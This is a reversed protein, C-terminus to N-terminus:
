NKKRRYLLIVDGGQRWINARITALTYLNHLPQGQCVLELWDEPKAGKDRKVTSDLKEDVYALIKRTRLMRYANLRANGNPLAPLLDEYPQLVFSVKSLEKSPIKNQLLFEGLWGPAADELVTVDQFNGCSEVTGRYLDVTGGAGPLQESIIIATEKPIRLYPAETPPAITYSTTTYPGTGSAVYDDRAKQIVGRLTDEYSPGNKAEEGGANTPNSNANANAGTADTSDSLRADASSQTRNLKVKGFSRLRGMLSNSASTTDTNSDAVAEGPVGTEAAAGSASTAISPVEGASSLSALAAAPPTSVSSLASSFYDTVGATSPSIPGRDFINGDNAATGHYNVPNYTPAPTALGIALGPTPLVMGGGTSANMSDNWPSALGALSLQGPPNRQISTNDNLGRRKALRFDSDLKLESEILRAFLNRLVWKGINIRQDERFEIQGTGPFPQVETSIEDSYIEAVFVYAEELVVALQGTRTNVQCWNVCSEFTNLEDAVDMIDRSGFSKVMVCKVLDWLKVEGATDVTLVRRRDNLLIHKILGTQGEITEEPNHRLPEVTQSNESEGSQAAKTEPLITKSPSEESDIVIGNGSLSIISSRPIHSSMSNAIAQRTQLTPDQRNFFSASSRRRSMLLRHNQFSTPATDVDRWRHIRSNATATWISDGAVAIKSVGQHENCILVSLSDESESIGRMDTKVVMGSRDSSHFVELNPHDSHLSWVSTDHMNLTHLLRGATISWLKVTSDSSATLVLYGEASILISRINDTHGVFNVISSGSRQDWLRVISDPGGTGIISGGNGGIGLGYVSGKPNNGKDGVDIQLKEGGGNLDWLKVKRDLGGSAIWDSSQDSIALCKVFDNHQGITSHMNSKPNWLKVTLDSSCSIVTKYNNALILDNVWHTHLQIKSRFTTKGRPSLDSSSKQAGGSQPTPADTLTPLNSKAAQEMTSSEDVAPVKVSDLSVDPNLEDFTSYSSRALNVDDLNWSIVMGDRGATYLLGAHTSHLPPTPDVAISNVGLTHGNQNSDSALLYTIKRSTKRVM